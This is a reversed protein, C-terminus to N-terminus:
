SEVKSLSVQFNRYVLSGTSDTMTQRCGLKARSCAWDDHVPLDSVVVQVQVQDRAVQDDREQKGGGGVYLRGTFSTKDHVCEM